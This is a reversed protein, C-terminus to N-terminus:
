KKASQTRVDAGITLTGNQKFCFYIPKKAKDPNIEPIDVHNNAAIYRAYYEHINEAEFALFSRCGFCRGAKISPDILGVGCLPCEVTENTVLADDRIMGIFIASDPSPGGKPLLIPRNRKNPTRLATNQYAKVATNTGATNPYNGPTNSSGGTYSKKKVSTLWQDVEEAIELDPAPPFAFIDEPNFQFQKGNQVMEIYHEDPKGKKWAYTIHLGDWDAQDKHDTTSFYATMEPHSHASGILSQSPLKAALVTEDIDYHCSVSTNEQPPAIIGWGLEPTDTDVFDEDYVLLLVSETGHLLFARHFFDSMKREMEWPIPPLMFVADEKIAQNIGLFHDSVPIQIVGVLNKTVLYISPRTIKKVTSGDKVEFGEYGIIYFLDVGEALIQEVTSPSTGLYLPLNKLTGLVPITDSM